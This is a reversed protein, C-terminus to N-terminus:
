PLLHTMLIRQHLMKRLRPFLRKYQCHKKYSGFKIHTSIKQCNRFPLLQSILMNEHVEAEHRDAFKSIFVCGYKWFSHTTAPHKVFPEANTTHDSCFQNMKRFRSSERIPLNQGSFGIYHKLDLLNIKMYVINPQLMLEYTYNDPGICHAIFMRQVVMAAESKMSFLIRIHIHGTIFCLYSFLSADEHMM